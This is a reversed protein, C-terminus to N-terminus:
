IINPTIKRKIQYRYYINVATYFLYRAPHKVFEKRFVTRQLINPISFVKEYLQWYADTLEEPTMNKPIHVAQSGDYSDMDHNYIRKQKLMEEHYKTGPIPTLIYFRPM